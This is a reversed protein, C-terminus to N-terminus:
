AFLYRLASFAAVVGGLLALLAGLWAHSTRQPEQPAAMDIENLEGADSVKVQDAVLEIETPHQAAALRVTLSQTDATAFPFGLWLDCATLIPSELQAPDPPHSADIRWWPLTAILSVTDGGRMVTGGAASHAGGDRAEGHPKRGSPPTTAPPSAADAPPASQASQQAGQARAERGQISPLGCLVATVAVIAIRYSMPARDQQRAIASDVGCRM